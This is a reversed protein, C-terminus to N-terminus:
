RAIAVAAGIHGRHIRYRGGIRERGEIRAEAVHVVADFAGSALGSGPHWHLEVDQFELFRRRRPYLAKYVAEKACFALIGALPRLDPALEGIRAVETECLIQPLLEDRLPAAPEVDLGLGLMDADTTLAVACLTNCHTISGTVPDPWRPVRDDDPLLADLPHGAQALLERALLRGAAFEHRRKAVAREILRQEDRHLREPDAAGPAIEALLVQEPLLPRFLM